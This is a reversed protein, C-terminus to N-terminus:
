AFTIHQRRSGWSFFHESWIKKMVQCSNAFHYFTKKLNEHTSTITSARRLLKVRPIIQVRQQGLGWRGVSVDYWSGFKRLLIQLLFPRVVCLELVRKCIVLIDTFLRVYVYIICFVFACHLTIYPFFVYLITTHSMSITITRAPFFESKSDQKFYIYYSM